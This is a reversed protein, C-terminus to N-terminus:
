ISQAIIKQGDSKGELLSYFSKSYYVDDKPDKHANDPKTSIEETSSELSNSEATKEQDKCSILCVLALLIIISKM